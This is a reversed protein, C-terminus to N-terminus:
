QIVFATFYVDEVRDGKPGLELVDNV